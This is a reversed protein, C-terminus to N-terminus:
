YWTCYIQCIRVQPQSSTVPRYFRLHRKAQTVLRNGRAELRCCLRYRGVKLGRSYHVIEFPLFKQQPYLIDKNAHWLVLLRRVGKGRRVIDYVNNWFERGKKLGLVNNDRVRFHSNSPPWTVRQFSKSTVIHQSGCDERSWASLQVFFLSKQIMLRWAILCAGGDLSYCCLHIRIHSHMYALPVTVKADFCLLVHTVKSCQETWLKQYCM